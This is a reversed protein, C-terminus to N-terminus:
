ALDVKVSAVEKGEVFLAKIDKKVADAKDWNAGWAVMCAMAMATFGAKDLKVYINSVGDVDKDATKWQRTYDAPLLSMGVLQGVIVLPDMYYTHGNHEFTGAQLESRLSDVEALKQKLDEVRQQEELAAKAGAIEQWKGDVLEFRDPQSSYWEAERVTYGKHSIAKEVVAVTFGLQFIKARPDEVLEGEQVAFRGELLLRWAEKWNPAKATKVYEYDHKTSCIPIESM